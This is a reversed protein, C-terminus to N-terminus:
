VHECSSYNKNECHNDYHQRKSTEYKCIDCKYEEKEKEKFLGLKVKHQKSNMHVTYDNKYISKFNCDICEFEEKKILGLKIKHKNSKIHNDYHQKLLAKYECEKCEYEKSM